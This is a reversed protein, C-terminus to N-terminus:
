RYQALTDWDRASLEAGCESTVVGTTNNVDMAIRLVPIANFKDFSHKKEEPTQVQLTLFFGSLLLPLSGSLILKSTKHFITNEKCNNYKDCSYVVPLFTM